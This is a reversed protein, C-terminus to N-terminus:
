IGGIRLFEGAFKIMDIGNQIQASKEDILIPGVTGSEWSNKLIQALSEPKDRNFFVIYPPGQEQHVEIDSVILRKGLARAEEVSTNWGEFLSPQILAISRRLLQIQDEKPILGLLRINGAIGLENIMSLAIDAYEPNRDDNLHGTCVICPSPGSEVCIKVAKFVVEHNKHKWFQNSLLFFRDPLHYKNQIAVPESKHWADQVAVRFNLVSAKKAFDPFARCYDNLAINSSVVVKESNVALYTIFKERKDIEEKSFLEPLYKHQFDFIWAASKFPANRPPRSYYPYVFDIKKRKLFTDLRPNDGGNIGRMLKWCIRNAITNPKLEDELVCLEIIHQKMSDYFAQPLTKSCLLFVDPKDSVYSLAIALNKIYEVGGIWSRDGQMVLCIRRKKM